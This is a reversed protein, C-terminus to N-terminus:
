VENESLFKYFQEKTFPFSIFGSEGYGPIRVKIGVGKDVIRVTNSRMSYGKFFVGNKKRYWKKLLLCKVQTKSLEVGNPVPILLNILNLLM